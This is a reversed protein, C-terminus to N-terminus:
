LYCSSLSRHLYVRVQHQTDTDTDTTTTYKLCIPLFDRSVLLFGKGKGEREREREREKRSLRHLDISLLLFIFVCSPPSFLPQSSSYPVSRANSPSFKAMGKKREKRERTGLFFVSTPDISKAPPSLFFLLLISQHIRGREKKTRAGTLKREM